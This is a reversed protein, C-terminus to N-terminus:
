IWLLAGTRCNDCLDGSTKQYMSGPYYKKCRCCKKVKKKEYYNLLADEVLYFFEKNNKLFKYDWAICEKIYTTLEEGILLGNEPEIFLERAYEKAIRKLSAPKMCRCQSQGKLLYRYGVEKITNCCNCEIKVTYDRKGKERIASKLTYQGKYVRDIENEIHLRSLSAM